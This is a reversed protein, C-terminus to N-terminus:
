QKQWFFYQEGDWERAINYDTNGNPTPFYPERYFDRFSTQIDWCRDPENKFLENWEICAACFKLYREFLCHIGFAKRNHRLYTFPLIEGDENKQFGYFIYRLVTDALAPLIKSHVTYKWGDMYPERYLGIQLKQKRDTPNGTEDNPKRGFDYKAVLKKNKDSYAKDDNFCWVELKGTTKSFHYRINDVKTEAM